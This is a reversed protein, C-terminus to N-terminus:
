GWLKASASCGACKTDATQLANNPHLFPPSRCASYMPLQPKLSAGRSVTWSCDKKKAAGFDFGTVYIPPTYLRLAYIISLLGTSPWQQKFGFKNRLEMQIDSHMIEVGPFGAWKKM